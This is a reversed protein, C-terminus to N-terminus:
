RPGPYNIIQSFDARIFLYTILFIVSSTWCIRPIIQRHRPKTKPIWARLSFGLLITGIVLHRILLLSSYTNDEIQEFPQSQNQVHTIAKSVNFVFDCRLLGILKGLIIQAAYGIISAAIVSIVASYPIYERPCSVGKLSDIKLAKLTFFFGAALYVFGFITSWLYPILSTM